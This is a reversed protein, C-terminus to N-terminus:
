TTTHAASQPIPDDWTMEPVPRLLSLADRSVDDLDEDM